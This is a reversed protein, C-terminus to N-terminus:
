NSFFTNPRKALFTSKHARSPARIVRHHLPFRIKPNQQVRFFCFCVFLCSVSVWACTLVCAFLLLFVARLFWVGGGVRGECVCVCVCVVCASCCVGCM